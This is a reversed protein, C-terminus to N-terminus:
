SSEEAILLTLPSYAAQPHLAEILWLCLYPSRIGHGWWGEKKEENGQEGKRSANQSVVTNM